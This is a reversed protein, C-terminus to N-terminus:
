KYHTWKRMKSNYEIAELSYIRTNVHCRNFMPEFYNVVKYQNNDEFLEYSWEGDEDLKYLTTPYDGQSEKFNEIQAVLQKGIRYKELVLKDQIFYMWGAIYISSSFVFIVFIITLVKGKKHSLIKHHCILFVPVLLAVIFNLLVFIRYSPIMDAFASVVSFNDDMYYLYMIFSLCALWICVWIWAAIKGIRKEYFIAALGSLLSFSVFEILGDQMHNLSNFPLFMTYCFPILWYMPSLHLLFHINMKTNM